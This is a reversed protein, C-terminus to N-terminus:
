TKCLTKAPFPSKSTVQLRARRLSIRQALYCDHIFWISYLVTSGISCCCLYLSSSWWYLLYQLCFELGVAAKERVLPHCLLRPIHLPDQARSRFWVIPYSTRKERATVCARRNYPPFVSLFPPKIALKSFLSTAMGRINWQAGHLLFAQMGYLKQLSSPSAPYKLWSKSSIRRQGRLM